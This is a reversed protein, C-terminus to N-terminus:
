LLQSSRIKKEKEKLLKNIKELKAETLTELQLICKLVFCLAYLNSIFFVPSVEKMFRKSADEPLKAKVKKVADMGEKRCNRVQVKFQMLSSLQTLIMFSVCIIYKVKEAAKGSVKVLEDRAEASPQMIMVTVIGDSTTPNLSM